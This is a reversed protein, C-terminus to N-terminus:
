LVALKNNATKLATSSIGRFPVVYENLSLQYNNQKPQNKKEHLAEQHVKMAYAKQM